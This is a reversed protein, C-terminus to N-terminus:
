RWFLLKLALLFSGVQKAAILPLPARLDGSQKPIEACISQSGGTRMGWWCTGTRQSGRASPPPTGLFKVAVRFHNFVTNSCCHPPSIFLLFWSTWLYSSTKKIVKGAEFNSLPLSTQQLKSRRPLPGAFFILPPSRLNSPRNLVPAKGEIQIHTSTPHPNFRLQM